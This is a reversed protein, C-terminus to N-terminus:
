TEAGHARLRAPDFGRGELYSLVVEARRRGKEQNAAGGDGNGTIAIAAAPCDAGLETLEDLLSFASSSLTLSGRAFDIRHARFATAFLGRCVSEFSQLNKLLAVSTNLVIDPSLNNELLDVASRWADPESSLGRITIKQPTIEATASSTKAM